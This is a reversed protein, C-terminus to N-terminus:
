ETHIKKYEPLSIIEMDEPNIKQDLQIDHEKSLLMLSIAGELSTDDIGLKRCLKEYDEYSNTTTKDRHIASRKILACKPISKENALLGWYKEFFQFIEIKEDLTINPYAKGAEIDKGARSMLQECLTTINNKASDYNRKYFAKKDYPEQNPIHFGQSTFQAFWEPSSVAYPYLNTTEDGLSIKGESNLEGWGLVGPIGAKAFITGVKRLENWDWMRTHPDLGNERISKEFIGNFSHFYFGKHVANELFYAYIKERDQTTHPEDNMGLERAAHQILLKIKEQKFLFDGNPKNLTEGASGLENAYTKIETKEPFLIFYQIIDGIIRDRHEEPFTNIQEITRPSNLVSSMREETSLNKLDRSIEDTEPVPEERPKNEAVPEKEKKTM